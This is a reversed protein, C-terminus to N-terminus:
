KKDEPKKPKKQSAWKIKPLKSKGEMCDEIAREFITRNITSIASGFGRLAIGESSLFSRYQEYLKKNVRINVAYDDNMTIGPTNHEKGKM